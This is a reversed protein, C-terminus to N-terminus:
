RRVICHLYAIRRGRSRASDRVSTREAPARPSWQGASRERGCARHPQDGSWWGRPWSLRAHPTTPAANGYTCTRSTSRDSCAATAPEPNSTPNEFNYTTSFIQLQNENINPSAVEPESQGKKKAASRELFSRLDTIAGSSKRSKM